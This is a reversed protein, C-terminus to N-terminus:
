EGVEYQSRGTFQNVKDKINKDIQLSLKQVEDSYVMVHINNSLGLTSLDPLAITPLELKTNSFSINGDAAKKTTTATITTPTTTKKWSAQNKSYNQVTNIKTDTGEQSRKPFEPLKPITFEPMSPMQMDPIQMDPMQMDPMQMDPMQMDPMTPMKPAKFKPLDPWSFLDPMIMKKPAVEVEETKKWSAQYPSYNKGKTKDSNSNNNDIMNWLGTALKATSRRRSALQHITTISSEAMWANCVSSSSPWPVVSSLFFVIVFGALVPFQWPTPGFRYM